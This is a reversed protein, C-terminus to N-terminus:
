SAGTFRIVTVFDVSAVNAAPEIDLVVTGSSRDVASVRGVPIDPPFKSRDQGNTLVPDGVSVPADIPITGTARLPNGAGTGRALSVEQGVRVGVAFQPATILQVRSRTPDVEVLRGVLGARTVVPMDKALGANSGKDIEVSFEDFNGVSGAVVRAVVRPYDGVYPIDNQELLRKLTETDVEDQIQQGKLQEIEERLRQNEAQLSGYDFIGRGGDIVPQLVVDVGARVPSLVSRLGRQVTALPGFGRFDLSLLTVASLVLLM